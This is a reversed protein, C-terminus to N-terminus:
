NRGMVQALAKTMKLMNITRRKFLATLKEDCVIERKDQPNQLNHERIYRWIAQSVQLLTLSM